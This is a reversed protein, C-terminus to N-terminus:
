LSCHWSYFLFAKTCMLLFFFVGVQAWFVNYVWQQFTGFVLMISALHMFASLLFSLNVFPYFSCFKYPMGTRRLSYLKGITLETFSGSISLFIYRQFQGRSLSMMFIVVYHVDAWLGVTIPAMFESFENMKDWPVDNTRRLVYFYINKAWTAM